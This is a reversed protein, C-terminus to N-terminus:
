SRKDEKRMVGNVEEECVARRGVREWIREEMEVCRNMM